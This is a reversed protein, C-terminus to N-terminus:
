GARHSLTGTRTPEIHCHAPEPRYVAAGYPGFAKSFRYRPCPTSRRPRATQRPRCEDVPSAIPFVRLFRTTTASPAPPTSAATRLAVPGAASACGAEACAGLRGFAHTAMSASTPSPAEPELIPAPSTIRTLGPPWLVSVVLVAGIPLGLRSSGSPMANRALPSMTTVSSLKVVPRGSTTSTLGLVPTRVRM